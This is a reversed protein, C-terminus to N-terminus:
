SSFFKFKLYKGNVARFNQLLLFFIEKKKRPKKNEQEKCLLLKLKTKHLVRNKSTNLETYKIEGKVTKM